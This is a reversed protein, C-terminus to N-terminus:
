SEEDAPGLFRCPLPAARGSESTRKAPKGSGVWRAPCLGSLSERLLGQLRNPALPRGSVVEGRGVPVGMVMQCLRFGEYVWTLMNYNSSISRRKTSQMTPQRFVIPM